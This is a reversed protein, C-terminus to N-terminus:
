RKDNDVGVLGRRASSARPLSCKKLVKCGTCIGSNICEGKRVLKQRKAFLAASVAAMLGLAVYRLAGAFLERRNRFEGSHKRV